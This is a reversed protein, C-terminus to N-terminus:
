FIIRDPVQETIAKDIDDAMLRTDRDSQKSSQYERLLEKIFDIQYEYLKITEM